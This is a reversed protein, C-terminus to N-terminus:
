VNIRMEREIQKFAKLYQNKVGSEIENTCISQVTSFLESNRYQPQLVIRSLAYACSWRIIKSENSTNALIKPIASHIEEPFVVALNGIIRSAERIIANNESSIYLTAFTVWSENIIQRNISPKQSIEELAELFIILIKEDKKTLNQKNGLCHKLNDLTIVEEKLYTVLLERKMIRKLQPDFIFDLEQM